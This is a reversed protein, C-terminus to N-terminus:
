ACCDDDCPLRLPLPDPLQLSQAFTLATPIPMVAVLKALRDKLYPPDVVVDGVVIMSTCSAVAVGVFRKDNGVPTLKVM